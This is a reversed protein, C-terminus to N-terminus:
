FTGAHHLLADSVDWLRHANLPDLAYAAVGTGAANRHDVTPAQNCDDFSSGGIGELDPSTALLVSTAAGQEPTKRASPPRSSNAASTANCTRPMARPFFQAGPRM